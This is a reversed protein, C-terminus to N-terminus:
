KNLDIITGNAIGEAICEQCISNGTELDLASVELDLKNNCEQCNM